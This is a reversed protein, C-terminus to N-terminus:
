YILKTKYLSRLNDVTNEKESFWKTFSELWVLFSGYWFTFYPFMFLSFLSFWNLNDM